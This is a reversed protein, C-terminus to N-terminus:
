AIAYKRDAGNLRFVNYCSMCRAKCIRTTSRHCNICQRPPLSEKPIRGSIKPRPNGTRRLYENCQGCLGKRLPKRFRECNNCKQPEKRTAIHNKKAAELFADLRGDVTMHCKRCLIQINERVNNGTDGDKHHRDTAKVGCIECQSLKFLRRARCRKTSPRAADGKWNPAKDGRLGPTGKPRGIKKM